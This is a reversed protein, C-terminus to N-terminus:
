YYDEVGIRVCPGEERGDDGERFGDGIEEDEYVGMECDVVGVLNSDYGAMAM